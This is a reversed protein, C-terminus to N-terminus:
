ITPEKKVEGNEVLFANDPIHDGHQVQTLFYQFDDGEVQEVFEKLTDDDLSEARDLCLLKLKADKNKERVIQLAVAVKESTSMYKLAKDGIMVKDGDFSLGKIPINASETLMRPLTDRLYDITDTLDNANEILQDYEKEIGKADVYISYLKDQKEAETIRQRAGEIKGEITLIDPVKDEVPLMSLTNKAEKLKKDLMDYREKADKIANYKEMKEDLEKQLALIKKELDACTNGLQELQNIGSIDIKEMDLEISAIKERLKFSTQSAEEAQKRLLQANSLEQSMRSLTNYAGQTENPNYDEPAFGECQRIKEEFLTKKVAARKNVSTRQAYFIGAANKLITFGDQTFDLLKITENDVKDKLTEPTVQIDFIDLLYKKLDKDKLLLFAFPDLSFASGILVDLFTQARKKEDGDENEVVLKHKERSLTRTIKYKGLDVLVQTEDANVNIIDEDTTGKFAFKLAEIFDTKGQKNKGFFINLKSDPTIEVKKLCLFNDIKINLISLNNSNKGM